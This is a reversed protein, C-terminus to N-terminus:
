RGPRRSGKVRRLSEEVGWSTQLLAGVDELELGATEPYILWIAVWGVVCVAAYTVFTWTPTLVEMMPLFSLGVVFNCFWNTGTSISSGLSRVSLPFLESQQWPVSGMGTAYPAVYLMLSVLIAIAPLRSRPQDDPAPVPAKGVSSNPLDVFHFALSCSLLALTMTPLTLLLSRRRGLRDILYFAVLTFVFNTTAVTMSTLTPSAFRLLSFISASFYMLSNFGCLQQLAQLLCAITLARAHPPHFLLSSLTPGLLTRSASTQVQLRSNEEETLDRRIAHLVHDAAGSSSGYIKRLINKAREDKDAKALWRPTEPMFILAVFQVAAPLAGLGVMWRWGSPLTSFLWGILYAVVQGGTVFAISITVLRGRVAGPALESIYLPVILSAGGIALGVISRGLIMGRVTGTLAQALAGVSFLIDAVLIVMKRGYRDALYGSVPSAILAFLSTSATILGKELSTLVHDSLDTGISVLTSSIVGTDYGFLLGSVGAAITLTWVYLKSYAQPQEEAEGNSILPQDQGYDEADEATVTHMEVEELSPSKQRARTDGDENM